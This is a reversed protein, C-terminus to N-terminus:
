PITSLAHAPDQNTTGGLQNCIGNLGLFQKPDTRGAKRNLAGLLDYNAGGGLWKNAAAQASLTPAGNVLSVALRNLEYTLDRPNTRV